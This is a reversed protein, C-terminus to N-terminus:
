WYFRHTEGIEPTRGNAAITEGGKDRPPREEGGLSILEYFYM